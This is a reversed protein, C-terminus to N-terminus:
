DSDSDCNAIENQVDDEEEIPGVFCSIEPKSLDCPQGSLMTNVHYSTYIMSNETKDLALCIQKSYCEECDTNLTSSDSGCGCEMSDSEDRSDKELDLIMQERKGEDVEKSLINDKYYYRALIKSNFRLENDKNRRAKWVQIPDQSPTKRWGVKVTSGGTGPVLATDPIGMEPRRLKSRLISKKSKRSFYKPACLFSTVREGALSTEAGKIASMLSQGKDAIEEEYNTPKLLQLGFRPKPNIKKLFKHLNLLDTEQLLNLEKFTPIRVQNTTVITKEGDLINILELEVPSTVGTVLHLLSVKSLLASVTDKKKPRHRIFIVLEGVEYPNRKVETEGKRADRRKQLYVKRKELIQDSLSKLEEEDLSETMIVNLAGYFNPSLFMSNRTTLSDGVPFKRNNIDFLVKHLHRPWKNRQGPMSCLKQLGRKVLGVAMESLNSQPRQPGTYAFNVRNETLFRKLKHSTFCGHRDMKVIRPYNYHRFYSTLSRIVQASTQGRNPYACIHQSISDIVLLICDYKGVDSIPINTAHDLFILEGPVAEDHSRERGVGTPGLKKNKFVCIVCDDCIDAAIVKLKPHFVFNSVLSILQNVDPHNFTQKHVAEMIYKLLISPCVLLDIYSKNKSVEYNLYERKHLIGNIMHYNNKGERSLSKVDRKKLMITKLDKDTSQLKKIVEARIEGDLNLVDNLMFLKKLTSNPIEYIINEREEKKSPKPIGMEESEVILESYSKVISSEAILENTLNTQKNVDDRTSSNTATRIFHSEVQLFNDLEQSMGIFRNTSGLCGEGRDSDIELNGPLKDFKVNNYQAIVLNALSHGSPIEINKNSVNTCLVFVTGTYHTDICNSLIVLGKKGLSSRSLILGHFGGPLYLNIKMNIKKIEFPRIIEDTPCRLDIHDGSNSSELKHNATTRYYGFISPQTTRKWLFKSGAIKLHVYLDPFDQTLIDCIQDYIEQDPESLYDCLLEYFQSYVSKQLPLYEFEVITKLIAVLDKQERGEFKTLNVNKAVAKEEEIRRLEEAKEEEPLHFIDFNPNLPDILNEMYQLTDDKKPTELLENQEGGEKKKKRQKREDDKTIWPEVPEILDDKEGKELAKKRSSRSMGLFSIANYSILPTKSNRQNRNYKDISQQHEKVLKDFMKQIEEKTMSEFDVIRNPETELKEAVSKNITEREAMLIDYINKASEKGTWMGYFESFIIGECARKSLMVIAEKVKPALRRYNDSKYPTFNYEDPRPAEYLAQWYNEENILGIPFNARIYQSQASSLVENEEAPIKFVYLRSIIDAFISYIGKINYALIRPFQMLFEVCNHMAIKHMKTRFLFSLWTADALVFCLKRNFLIMHENFKLNDVAALTEKEAPAKRRQSPSFLKASCSLITFKDTEVDYQLVIGSMALHSIDSLCFIDKDPDQYAVHLACALLAQLEEFCKQELYGWQWVGRELLQLLPVAIIRFFMLVSSYYQFVALISNVESLSAPKTITMMQKMKKEPLSMFNLEGNIRRGLWVIERQYTVVRTPKIRLGCLSIAKLVLFVCDAHKRLQLDKDKEADSYIKLDDVYVDLFSSWSPYHIKDPYKQKLKEYVEESFMTHNVRSQYWAPLGKIGQAAKRYWYKKDNFTYSLYKRHEKKIVVSSYANCIDLVTFVKNRLNTRQSRNSDIHSHLITDSRLLSNLPKCDLVLRYEPEKIKDLGLKKRSQDWCKATCKDQKKIGIMNQNWNTGGKAEETIGAELWDKHTPLVADIKQQSWPRVTEAVFKDKFEDVLILEMEEHRYTGIDRDNKMFVHESEPDELITEGDSFFEKFVKELVKWEEKELPKKVKSSDMNAKKIDDISYPPAEKPIDLHNEYVKEVDEVMEYENGQKDKYVSYLDQTVLNSNNHVKRMEVHNAYIEKDEESIEWPKVEMKYSNVEKYDEDAFGICNDKDIEIDETTKNFVTIKYKQKVKDEQSPIHNVEVVEVGHYNYFLNVNETNLSIPSNSICNLVTAQESKVEIIENSDIVISGAQDAEVMPIEITEKTERNEMKVSNADWCFSTESFQRLVDLGILIIDIDGVVVETKLYFNPEDADPFSLQLNSTLGNLINLDVNEPAMKLGIKQDFISFNHAEMLKRPAMTRTSGSDVVGICNLSSNRSKFKIQIHPLIRARAYLSFNDKSLNCEVILFYATNAKRKAPKVSKLNHLNKYIKTEANVEKETWPTEGDALLQVVSSDYCLQRDNESKMQSPVIGFCAQRLIDKWIQDWTRGTPKANNFQPRSPTKFKEKRYSIKSKVNGEKVGTLKGKDILFNSSGGPLNSPIVNNEKNSVQEVDMDTDVEIDTSFSFDSFDVSSQSLIDHNKDM